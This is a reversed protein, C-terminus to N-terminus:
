QSRRRGKLIASAEKGLIPDDTVTEIVARGQGADIRNGIRNIPRLFYIRSSGLTQNHFLALLDDYHERRACGSMAAALRDRVADSETAVYLRKFDEWWSPDPKFPLANGIDDLVREPYDRQLHDLLVPIALPYSEPQEYLRYLDDVEVGAARLDDFVPQCAIRRQEANANREGEVRELRARYAPDERKRREKEAMIETAAKAVLACYGRSGARSRQDASSHVPCRCSRFAIGDM